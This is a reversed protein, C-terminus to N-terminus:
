FLNAQKGELSPKGYVGDYGPEVFIKANRNKMIIKAIAPSTVKILENVPVNLLINMENGFKKILPNYEEWVTKTNVGKKLVESILDHLPIIKKFEPSSKGPKARDALDEVRHDVGIILKKKCVPCIDNLEKSKKPSCSFNCDRHGDYHYKGYSPDVEITGLLGKGTRIINLVDKYSFENKLDLMNCERGLRWP